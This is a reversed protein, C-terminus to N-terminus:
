DEIEDERNCHYMANLKAIDGSSLGDRQGIVANTQVKPTITQRGNKSFATLTYHMVSGFDYRVGYGSTATNKEFNNIKGPEINEWNITVYNDRDARNQEHTFGIAHMFEHAPTGRKGGFCGSALNLEQRGGRRGLASFCGSKSNIVAVYDTDRPRKPVIRICTNRSYDMIARGILNREAQTFSGEIRYPVIANPWRLRLDTLGNRGLGEPPLVIDGEFFSGQEGKASSEDNGSGHHLSNTVLESVGGSPVSLGLAVPLLLLMPVM